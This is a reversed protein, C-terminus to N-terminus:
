SIIEIDSGLSSSRSSSESAATATGSETISSETSLTTSDSSAELSVLSETLADSSLSIHDDPECEGMYSPIQIADAIEKKTRKVCVNREDIQNQQVPKSDSSNSHDAEDTTNATEISSIPSVSTGSSGDNLSLTEVGAALVDMLSSSAFTLKLKNNSMDVELSRIDPAQSQRPLTEIYNPQPAPSPQNTDAYVRSWVTPNIIYTFISKVFQVLLDKMFYFTIAAAM